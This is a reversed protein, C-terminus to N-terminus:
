RTERYSNKQKKATTKHRKRDKQLQQKQLNKQLQKTDRNNNQLLSDVWLQKILQKM